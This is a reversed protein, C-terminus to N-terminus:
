IHKMEKEKDALMKELKKVADLTEQALHFEQETIQENAYKEQLILLETENQLKAQELRLQLAEPSQGLMEIRQQQLAMEMQTRSNLSDIQIQTLQEQYTKEDILNQQRLSELQAKKQQAQILEVDQKAAAGGATNANLASAKMEALALQKQSEIDIALTKQAELHKKYAELEVSNANLLAQTQIDIGNKADLEQLGRIALLKNTEEEIARARSEEAYQMRMQMIQQQTSVERDKLQQLRLEEEKLVVQRTEMATKIKLAKTAEEAYFIQQNIKNLEAKIEDTQPEAALKIKLDAAEKKLKDISSKWAAADENFMALSMRPSLEKLASFASQAGEMAKSFANRLQAVEQATQNIKNQLGEAARSAMLAGTEMDKGTQKAAKAATM